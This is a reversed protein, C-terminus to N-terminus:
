ESIDKEQIPFSLTVTTGVDIKSEIILTGKHMDILSKVISLGLGTGEKALYPTSISRNFPETITPLDAAPIGAGTDMVKVEINDEQIEAQVTITGGHKSYKIANSLINLVIQVISRRDAFIKPLNDCPKLFLHIGKKDAAPKVSTFCDKLVQCVDVHEKNLARKGAEIAAIDLMDNVLSLLQEGSVHIDDAYEGYNESGLPGFYQSRLMESFGLIANLPTRFEHSMTAMFESKAQNAEELKISTERLDNEARMHEAVELNLEATRQKVKRRLAVSWGVPIGVLIIGGLVAWVLYQMIAERSIGRPNIEGFWKDYIEDYRGTERIINLGENLHTLLDVNGEQVAFGFGRGYADLLPGTVEINSLELEKATLLGVLHPALAYDHKGSALLLLSESVTKTLVLHDSIDNRVLWDHGADSQMVIIAKDRLGQTTEINPTEKRKFIVGHTITHPTTFDFVKEREKSYSVLPLADIEGDELAKRVENWPGVRFTVDIEVAACVAKILDVSFGDAQGDKTVIAYPPYGIESGVIIQDSSTNFAMGERLTLLTFALFLFLFSKSM